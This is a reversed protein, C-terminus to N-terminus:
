PMLGIRYFGKSNKSSDFLPMTADTATVPNGLNNWNAQTLSTKYQVQYVRGVIANWTFAFMGNPNVSPPQIIPVV